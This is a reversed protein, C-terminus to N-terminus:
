KVVEFIEVDLSSFAERLVPDLEPNYDGLSQEEAGYFVYRVGLQQLIQSRDAKSTTANFFRNVDDRRKFFQATMAWHGLVARHDTYAPIFKGMEEGSLVVAREADHAELWDLAAVEASTLYYPKEARKLETFRWAFIYFNIPLALVLLVMLAWRRIDPAVTTARERWDLVARVALLGVPIQYPNLMHIQFDTPIYLLGWGVLAWTWLFLDPSTPTDRLPAFPNHLQKTAIRWLLVMGYVVMVCYPIGLLLFLHLPNPTYVGANAFQKLVERWLPNQTTLFTFYGAPPFSLLGVAGLGWFRDWLIRRARVFQLLVYVGLIIYVPLLDYAHQVGLYLATATAAAYWRWNGSREAQLFFGFIMLILMAAALFHPFALLNLFTNPEFVYLDLPFRVDALGNLYKDIVWVWGLGGGVSILAYVAWRENRKTFFLGCFWWLIALFGSGAVIRLLQFLTSESLGSVREIRGMILWLVNFLAPDNPESTLRNAIVLQTRHDRMWSWYQMTDPVDLMVGIYTRNPPASMYGYLYPLGTIVMLAAIWLVVLWGDGLTRTQTQSPAGGAQKKSLDVSM